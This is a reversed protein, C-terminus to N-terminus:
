SKRYKRGLHINCEDGEMRQCHHHEMEEVAKLVVPCTLININGVVQQQEESPRLRMTTERNIVVTVGAQTINHLDREGM